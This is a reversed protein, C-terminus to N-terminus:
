TQFGGLASLIENKTAARVGFGMDRNANQWEALSCEIESFTEFFRSPVGKKQCYELLPQRAYVLDAEAIAHRDSLGDGIYLVPWHQKRLARVILPKCTACGHACQMALTPQGAWCTQRPSRNGSFSCAHPFSISLGGRKLRVSSSFFDTGNRLREGLGSRRLVRRIVYDLGDSVVIFPIANARVFRLFGAFHPDVPISDVLANLRRPPAAVLALQRELCEKSGILGQTWMREVEAWGPAALRTLIEDTVDGLTITGDFDCFIIPRFLRDTM